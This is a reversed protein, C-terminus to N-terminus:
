LYCCFSHDFWFSKLFCLKEIVKKTGSELHIQKSLFTREPISLIAFYKSMGFHKTMCGTILSEM